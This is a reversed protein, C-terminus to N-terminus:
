DESRLNTQAPEGEITVQEGNLESLIRHLRETSSEKYPEVAVSMDLRLPQDLGLLAAKRQSLKSVLTGAAVDGRSVALRTFFSELTEIRAVELALARARDGPTAMELAHADLAKRVETTSCANREAIARIPVGVMAAQLVSDADLAKKPRAPM